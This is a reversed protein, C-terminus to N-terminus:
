DWRWRSLSPMQALRDACPGGKALLVYGRRAGTEQAAPINPFYACIGASAAYSRLHEIDLAKGGGYYDYGYGDDFPVRFDDILIVYESWNQDILEVEEQLPLDEYWHADLYFFTPTSSVGLGVLKKLFERSDCFELRVNELHALRQKAVFFSPAYIESSYVVKGFKALWGTTNGLYTGTEAITTFEFQVLINEVIRRRETQGNFSLSDDEYVPSRALAEFAYEISNVRVPLDVFNPFLRRAISKVTQRAWRRFGVTRVIAAKSQAGSTLTM